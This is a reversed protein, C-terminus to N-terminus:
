QTDFQIRSETIGDADSADEGDAIKWNSPKTTALCAKLMDRVQDKGEMTKINWTFTVLDRWYCDAQFLDVACEVDGAVVDRRTCQASRLGEREPSQRAHHYGGKRSAGSFRAQRITHGREPRM